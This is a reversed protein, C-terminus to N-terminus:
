TWTKEDKRQGNTLFLFLFDKFLISYQVIKQTKRRYLKKSFLYAQRLKVMMMRLHENRSENSKLVSLRIFALPNAESM